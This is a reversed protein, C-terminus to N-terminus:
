AIWHCPPFKRYFAMNVRFLQLVQFRLTSFVIELTKKKESTNNEQLHCRPRSLGATSYSDSPAPMRWHDASCPHWWALTAMGSWGRSRLVFVAQFGGAALPALASVWSGLASLRSLCFLWSIKHWCRSETLSKCLLSNGSSLTHLSVKGTRSCGCSSLGNTYAQLKCVVQTQIKLM